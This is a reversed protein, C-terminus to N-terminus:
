LFVREVINEAVLSIAWMAAPLFAYLVIRTYTSATFPWESISEVLSRYAVLDAMEGSRRGADPSQLVNRQRAIKSNVWELEQEKAHSIKKHVSYVQSLLAIVTGALTVVAILLLVQMFGTELMMLSWISFSGILLLANTLGQQTFPTLANLNFLDVQQLGKAIRSLRLSVAIIAYGLWWAWVM